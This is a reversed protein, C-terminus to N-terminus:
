TGSAARHLTSLIAASSASRFKVTRGNALRIFFENGGTSGWSIGALPSTFADKGNSPQYRVTGGEIALLGKASGIRHLYEVPFSAAVPTARRVTPATSSTPPASQTVTAPAVSSQSAGWKANLFGTGGPPLNFNSDIDNFGALSARLSHVGAKLNQVTLQGSSGATGAPKGDIYIQAGPASTIVVTALTPNFSAPPPGSSAVEHRGPAAGSSAQEVPGGAAHEQKAQNLKSAQSENRAALNRGSSAKTSGPKSEGPPPVTPLAAATTEPTQPPQSAPGAVNTQNTQAPAAAGPSPIASSPGAQSTAAATAPTAAQHLSGLYGFHFGAWM